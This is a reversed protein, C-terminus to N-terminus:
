AVRKSSAVYQEFDLRVLSLHVNLGLIIADQGFDNYTPSMVSDLIHSVCMM